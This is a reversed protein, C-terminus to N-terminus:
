ENSLKNITTEDLTEAIRILKQLALYLLMLEIKSQIHLETTQHLRYLSELLTFSEVESISDDNDSSNQNALSELMFLFEEGKPYVLDICCDSFPKNVSNLYEIIGSIDYNYQEVLWAIYLLSEFLQQMKSIHQDYELYAVMSTRLENPFFAYLNGISKSLFKLSSFINRIDESQERAHSFVKDFLPFVVRNDFERPMEEIFENLQLCLEIESPKLKSSIENLQNQLQEAYELYLM